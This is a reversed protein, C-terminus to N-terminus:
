AEGVELLEVTSDKEEVSAILIHLKQLYDCTAYSEYYVVFSGRCTYKVIYVYMYLYLVISIM